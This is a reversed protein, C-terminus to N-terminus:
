SPESGPEPSEDGGGGGETAAEGEAGEAAEGEVGEEGEEGEVEVVEEEEIERIHAIKAVVEDPDSLVECEPPVVLDSVRISQELEELGTVDVEIHEPIETPLCSVKITNTLQQLEGENREAAPAEGVLVLPVDATIKEKLNVQFFDIHQVINRRPDYQVERVLVRRAASDGVTVDLLQTRGVKHFVRDFDRRAVAVAVSDVAKGYIVGPVKGAARLPRNQKLRQERPEAALTHTDAM